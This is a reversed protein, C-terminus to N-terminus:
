IRHHLQRHPRCSIQAALKGSVITTLQSFQKGVIRSVRSGLSTSNASSAAAAEAGRLLWAAPPWCWCCCGQRSLYLRQQMGPVPSTSLRRRSTSCMPLIGRPPCWTATPDGATFRFTTGPTLPPQGHSPQSHSRGMTPRSPSGAPKTTPSRGYEWLKKELLCGLPALKTKPSPDTLKM